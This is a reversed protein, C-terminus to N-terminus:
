AAIEGALLQEKSRGALRESLGRLASAMAAAHTDHTLTVNRRVAEVMASDGDELAERYAGIRGGMAEMLKGMKKGLTPDGLGTERLQGDMDEVFLEALLASQPGFTEGDQELRLLVMALMAAIMDFRGDQTDPVAGHTYWQPDRGHEVISRYLPQLADRPERRGFLRSFFSM